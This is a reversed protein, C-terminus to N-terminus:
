PLNRPPVGQYNIDSCHLPLFSEAAKEQEENYCAVVGSAVILARIRYVEEGTFGQDALFACSYGGVNIGEGYNTELYNSIELALKLHEGLKFGLQERLKELPAIREDKGSVPRAFGIIIPHSPDKSSRSVIQEVSLGSKFSKLAQQIFAFAALSTRSGGYMISDGALVGASAAAVVSTKLTGSLAGIHNCWIRPDPWSLCIFNNELWTAIRKEVLRGTANLVMMQMYSINGVLDHMIDYGHCHVSEGAIWKGQSSSIRGRHREWQQYLSSNDKSKLTM